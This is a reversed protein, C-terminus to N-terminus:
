RWAQASCRPPSTPTRPAQSPRAWSRGTSASPAKGAHTRAKPPFRRCSIALRPWASSPRACAPAPRAELMGRHASLEAFTMPARALADLVPAYAEAQLTVEGAPTSAQLRCSARPRVLAFRTEALMSELAAPTAKPAGRTFVDKRFVQNRAFDKVTEAFARDPIGSVIKAMEPRLVFQEFNDLLTASGAYTLKAGALERALDAHYSPSWNANQYEHALYHPDHRSMEALRAAALPNASFFRAEAKHLRAAFEMSRSVKDLRDGAGLNAHELLLRQLPAVQSLGPLCNYSLYVIGGPRLKRRMFELLHGRHEAAVWSWVGHLVIFHAEEVDEQLLEAFSKELFRVNGIGVDQALKRANHIHTPNFDVGCFRGSPNAAAHLATSLGNGCGLEYYTFTTDNQAEVSGLLTVFRLLAPSLERFYGRTYDLDVVYGEAWDLAAM